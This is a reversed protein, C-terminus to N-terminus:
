VQPTVESDGQPKEVTMVRELLKRGVVELVEESLGEGQAMRSVTLAGMMACMTLLADERPRESRADALQTSLLQIMREFGSVAADRVQDDGRALDSGLAAYPCGKDGDRHAANLYGHVSAAIAGADGSEPPLEVLKELLDDVAATTAQAVLQAKSEFHKYFGGQTMGVAAMLGTLGIGDVGHRRFEARAADVIKLKTAATEVRTKRM